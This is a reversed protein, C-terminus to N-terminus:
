SGTGAEAPSVVQNRLGTYTGTAAVDRLNEVLIDAVRDWHTPSHGGMHPTVLVNEFNWLLHDAPLPEPDTVDLAAGGVLNRQLAWVLAETDILEGRAVNVVVADPPLTKLEARGVLGRTTESLPSALILHDTRSFVEHISEEDFGYVEDTPGGKSPTYRIGITSVEFGELRQVVASGISGLGVVTVTKGALQDAQYRRWERRQQMRRGVHLNRVFTLLYGLV